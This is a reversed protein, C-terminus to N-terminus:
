TNISSAVACQERAIRVGVTALELLPYQDAADLAIWECADTSGNVETRLHGSVIQASYIIRVAHHDAEATSSVRSDITLLDGLAVDLGTEEKVERVAAQAPDEGFDIGGGPLTWQGPVTTEDSCRVLLIRANQVLIAYASIRTRQAKTM